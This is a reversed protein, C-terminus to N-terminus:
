KECAPANHLGPRRLSAEPRWQGSNRFQDRWHLLNRRRAVEPASHPQSEHVLVLVAAVGSRRDQAQCTWSGTPTSASRACGRRQVVWSSATAGSAQGVSFDLAVGHECACRNSRTRVFSRGNGIRIQKPRVALPSSPMPHTDVQEVTIGTDVVTVLTERHLCRRAGACAPAPGDFVCGLHLLGDGLRRHAGPLTRLSHFLSYKSGVRDLQSNIRPLRVWLHDMRYHVVRFVHPGVAHLGALQRAVRLYRAVGIANTVVVEGAFADKPCQFIRRREIPLSGIM